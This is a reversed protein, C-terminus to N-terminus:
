GQKREGTGMARSRPHLFSSGLLPSPRYGLPRADWTSTASPMIQLNNTLLGPFMLLSNSVNWNVTLWVSISGISYMLCRCYLQIQPSSIGSVAITVNLCLQSCFDTKLEEGKNKRQAWEGIWLRKQQDWLISAIPPRARHCVGTIWASQSALRHIMLDLSRSWRPWCPSVGDRSFICFILQAHHRTGTIGAVWSTSSPPDSSGLLSLSCDATNMWAVASWGPHCLLVKDWFVFFCIFLCVFFSWWM